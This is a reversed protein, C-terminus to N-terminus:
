GSWHFPLATEGTEMAEPSFRRELIVGRGAMDIAVVTSCRTGYVPNRIFIPSHNPEQPVDSPASPDRGIDPLIEERLGDFLLEPNTAEGTIWDLLLAKLRMTKPWPEDLKGNSLGYLGSGLRTRAAEPRNTMFCAGQQDAIILNVPNFASLDATRADAYTGKGALYDTVLAGRSALNPDPPAFGRLNTVVAFRGQESV